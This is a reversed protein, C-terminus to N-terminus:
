KKGFRVGPSAHAQLNLRTGSSGATLNAGAGHGSAVTPALPNTARIRLDGMRVFKNGRGQGTGDLNSSRQRGEKGRFAAFFDPERGEMMLGRGSRHRPPKSLAANKDQWLALASAMPEGLPAVKKVLRTARLFVSHLQTLEWFGSPCDGSDIARALGPIGSVTPCFLSGYNM